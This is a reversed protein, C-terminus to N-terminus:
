NLMVQGGTVPLAQGTEYQQEVLYYIARAVDRAECGRGMPVRSEYYRRVDDVSEAGPVKRADFYQKFLGNVPDSWLPGSLFNGPCVANVKVGYEVLELAFSQTLGIGGFKSGAYAFNKNSGVLGSKSNIGVIDATYSSCVSHQIIMPVSAYKVGLFYGTYNISTVFDFKQKTLDALGGATLVGANSIYLDLGGYSLVTERVMAAVSAENSVDVPVAIAMGDGYRRSLESVCQKAGEYNIDAVAIYAGQSALEEAIGRGFGQAGGTILAIKGELRGQQVTAEGELRGQQVTIKGELRGSQAADGGPNLEGGAKNNKKIYESFHGVYDCSDSEPLRTAEDLACHINSGLAFLGIGDIDVARPPENRRKAEKEYLKILTSKTSKLTSKLTSNDGNDGGDLKIRMIDQQGNLAGSPEAARTEGLYIVTARAAGSLHCCRTLPGGVCNDGAGDAAGSTERRHEAGDAAGSTVRRHEAGDTYNSYAAGTMAYLMRLVPAIAAAREKVGIAADGGVNGDNNTM